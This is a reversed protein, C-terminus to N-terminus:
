ATLRPSRAALPRLHGRRGGPRAAALPHTVVRAPPPIAVTKQGEYPKFVAPSRFVVDEALLAIAADLDAREVAERFAHRTM